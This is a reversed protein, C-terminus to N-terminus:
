CRSCLPCTLIPHGDGFHMRNRLFRRAIDRRKREEEEEYQGRDGEKRGERRVFATVDDATAAAESAM